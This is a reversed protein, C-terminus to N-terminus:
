TEVAHIMLTRHKNGTAEDAERRWRTLMNPDIGIELVVQRCSGGPQRSMVIAERKFKASYRRRKSM